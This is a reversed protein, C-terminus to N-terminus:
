LSISIGANYTRMLPLNGYDIGGGGSGGKTPTVANVGPDGGTYNTLLFLDTGSVFVSAAKFLKTRGLVTTPITYRLTVDKLRVWDIDREIFNEDAQSFYYGSGATANYYPIVQITNVTPNATNELGDKLVGQFIRPTERDLDRLSLGNAYKFLETANYVDGGKRTDILFSLALNKYRFQNNFGMTFNPNRDGVINWLTETLPLGSTPNILVQGAQNRQYSNGTFTTLAGGLRNGNRVNAYVWTDSDYFETVSAPLKLLRSGTSNFVTTLNWSFKDGRFIAADLTVETGWNELEGGNITKLIFGTGYSIRLGNIIQDVSKTRYYAADLTLRNDFFKLETGFEYSTVKEPRLFPNPAYFGYSFGGGTTTQAELAPALSYPPAEKGVQAASARLKGYNLVNQISSGELFRTFEFALSASPYFFSRTEIPFTSSWDNRATVTLFLFKDYDFTASGWAGVLRRRILNSLSRQTTPDTNNISNFDPVYFREGRTSLIAQSNNFISSGLRVNGGFKGFQKQLTAYYQITLNRTNETAQDLAGGYSRARNSEPHYKISYQGAFIDLGLQGTFKLWPTAQYDLSLNSISRNGDDQLSNKNVDFYPNEIESANSSLAKRRGDPFLYDAMDQTQPWQLIGLLFSNQGRSVKINKTNIYQLTAQAQLKPTIQATGFLAINLRDYKTTPVVGQRSSYGGSLRFTYNERGGEFSLNHRNAFGPQFFDNQNDFFQTGEPYKPGFYTIATENPIGNSGRGYVRQVSPVPGLKELTFNNSYTVRGQGAKGKKTTILVAGNAAEVGYLAAAEPGKLITITEIDEPNLDGARNQFDVTRNNISSGSNRDAVLNVSNPGSSGFTSNSIPLGDIVFLPQNNGSISNIGRIVISSSAGPMGSTGTVTVGAVRGQLGNVFNDRQTQAIEQGDVESVAYGLARKEQKIGLATVVVEDLEGVAAALTVNLTSESSVRVEKRTMGIMSFVLTAGTGASIQYTGTGNSTTGRTTGKVQVSAGPLPSGEADTVRGTILRDQATTGLWSLALGFSLLVARISERLRKKM